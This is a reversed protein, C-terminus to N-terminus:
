RQRVRVIITRELIRTPAATVIRNTLSYDEGLTGGGLWVTTSNVGFSSTIITIGTPPSPWSSLQISTNYFSMEKFWDISYEKEETPSKPDLNNLSV